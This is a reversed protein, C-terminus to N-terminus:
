TTVEIEEVLTCLFSSGFSFGKHINKAVEVIIGGTFFNLVM